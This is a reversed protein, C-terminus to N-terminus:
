ITTKYHTHTTHTRPTPAPSLVPPLSSVPSLRFLCFPPLPSSSLPLSLCWTYYKLVSVCTSVKGGRRGRWRGRRGGRRGGGMADATPYMPFFGAGVGLEPPLQTKQFSM